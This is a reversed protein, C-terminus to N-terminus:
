GESKKGFCRVVGDEDAIFLRDGAVAPAGIFASKVEFEWTKKGDKLNLRQLRGDTSAIWVDDGAIVPSADARRRLTHRWIRNGNKISIADVQKFQSSVVVFDGKVAASGRYEQQRDPDEYRWEEKHQKWDFRMVAGDMIPLFANDGLVAPTSGTPGGLPLPDAAAAGTKLDVVHLQADCGGLFTRDGAIAPSCRIQDDTQYDWVLKGTKAEFCYLKGDQSTVLVNDNYFAAASAIEGATTKTWLEKGDNTNIGYLNGEIDGVVMLTGQIAPAALFGTDYNKQWVETGTERNVAYLRGMVDSLFVKDGAVVPTTEIAEVAKYEWLVALDKPLNTDTSGSWRADGRPLPWDAGTTESQKEAQVPYAFAAAFVASLLFTLAIGVLHGSSVKGYTQIRM